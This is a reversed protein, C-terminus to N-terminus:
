RGPTAAYVSATILLVAKGPMIAMDYWLVGSKSKSKWEVVMDVVPWNEVLFGVM